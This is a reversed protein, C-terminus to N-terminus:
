LLDQYELVIVQGTFSIKQLSTPALEKLENVPACKIFNTLYNKSIEVKSETPDEIIVNIEFENSSKIVKIFTENIIQENDDLIQESILNFLSFDGRKKHLYEKLKSQNKDIWCIVDEKQTNKIVYQVLHYEKNNVFYSSENVTKTVITDQQCSGLIPLFLLTIKILCNM